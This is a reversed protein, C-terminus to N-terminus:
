MKITMIKGKQKELSTPDRLGGPEYDREVALLSMSGGKRGSGPPQFWTTLWCAPSPCAEGCQPANQIIVTVGSAAMWNRLHEQNRQMRGPPRQNYYTPTLPWFESGMWCTQCTCLMCCSSLGWNWEKILFMKWELGIFPLHAWEGVVSRQETNLAAAWIRERPQFIGPWWLVACDQKERWRRRAGETEEKASFYENGDKCPGHTKLKEHCRRAAIFRSRLGHELLSLRCSKCKMIRSHRKM